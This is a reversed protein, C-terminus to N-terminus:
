DEGRVNYIAGDVILYDDLDGLRDPERGDFHDTIIRDYDSRAIVYAPICWGLRQAVWARHHGDLILAGNGESAVVLIPPLEWHGAHAVAALMAQVKEPEVDHQTDFCPPITERTAIATTM